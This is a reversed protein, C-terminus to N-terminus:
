DCGSAAAAAFVICACGSSAEGEFSGGNAGQRGAMKERGKKGRRYMEKERSM